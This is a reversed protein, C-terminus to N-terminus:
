KGPDKVDGTGSPLPKYVFFTVIGLLVTQALGSFFWKLVLGSPVPSVAYSICTSVQLFLGMFLGYMCACKLCPSRDAFGKAWITVFTVAYLIESVLIWKMTAGMEAQTRWLSATALYDSKLWLGHILFDTASIFVFGVLIASVLRKFNM